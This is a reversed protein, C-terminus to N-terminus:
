GEGRCWQPTKDALAAIVDLVIAGAQELRAPSVYQSTDQPSHMVQDFGRSSLAVAPVGRWIFASHDSEYWPDVWLSGPHRLQVAQLAATLEGSAALTTITNPGMLQGVADMNIVALTEEVAAEPQQLYHAVGVGGMEEGCCALFELEVEGPQGALTEALALLLAAGSANDVAGPTDPMSDYHAMVVIRGAGRGPLRAIVNAFHGPQSRSDIRLRLKARDARRLLAAGVELPVSASPLPFLWDQLMRERSGPRPCVSLVAAPQKAELLDFLRATGEPYYASQRAGHGTGWSLDGVLLAIRGHLDAAELEALVALPVYEAEVQCAPSFTNAYAPLAEGDVELTCAFAEWLPVPLRQESVQLGAARLGDRLTEGAQQLAPSGLPRPGVTESLYRLHQFARQGLQNLNPPYEMKTKM